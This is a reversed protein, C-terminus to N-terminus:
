NDRKYQWITTLIGRGKDEDLTLSHSSLVYYGSCDSTEYTLEKEIQDINSQLKVSLNVDANSGVNYHFKSVKVKM